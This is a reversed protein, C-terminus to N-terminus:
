RLYLTLYVAVFVAFTLPFLVRAICDVKTTAPWKSCKVRVAKEGGEEIGQL